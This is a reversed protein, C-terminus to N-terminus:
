HLLHHGILLDCKIVLHVRIVSHITLILYHPIYKNPDIQIKWPTYFTAFILNFEANHGIHVVVAYLRYM